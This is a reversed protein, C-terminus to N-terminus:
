PADEQYAIAAALQAAHDSRYAKLADGLTGQGARLFEKASFPIQPGRMSHM